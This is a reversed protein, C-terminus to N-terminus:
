AFLDRALASAVKVSDPAYSGEAVQRKLSEIREQREAKSPEAQARGFNATVRVAESSEARSAQDTIATSNTSTTKKAQSNSAFLNAITDIKM